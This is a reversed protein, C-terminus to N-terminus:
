YKLLNKLFLLSLIITKIFLTTKCSFRLAIHVYRLILKQAYQKVFLDSGRLLMLRSIYFSQRM